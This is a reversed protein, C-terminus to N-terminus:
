DGVGMAQGALGCTSGESAAFRQRAGERQWHQPEERSKVGTTRPSGYLFNDEDRWGAIDFPRGEALKLVCVAM